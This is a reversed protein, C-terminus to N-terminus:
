CSCRLTTHCNSWLLSYLVGAPSSFEGVSLWCGAAWWRSCQAYISGPHFANPLICGVRVMSKESEEWGAPTGPAEAGAGVPEPLAEDRLSHDQQVECWLALCYQM